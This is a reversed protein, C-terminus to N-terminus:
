ILSTLNNDIFQPIKVNKLLEDTYEGLDSNIFPPIYMYTNFFKRLFEDTNYAKSEDGVENRAYIHKLHEKIAEEDCQVLFICNKLELFTKITALIEVTKEQKVRDLNDVIILLKKDRLKSHKLVENIFINEFGEASDTKQINKSGMANVYSNAIFTAVLGFLSFGYLNSHLEESLLGTKYLYSAINTQKSVLFLLFFMIGVWGGKMLFSQLQIGVVEKFSILAPKTISQNLTEKYNKELKLKDDINILFQRRLSDQEYKWVDFLVPVLGDKLLDDNEIEKCLFNGITSKGTGWKGFVGITFPTPCNSIITKLTKAISKHNLLDDDIDELAKDSLFTFFNQNKPNEKIKKM